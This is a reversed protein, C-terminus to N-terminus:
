RPLDFRLQAPDEAVCICNGMSKAKYMADDALKILLDGHEKCPRALTAVGLSATVKIVEPRHPTKIELREIATRMREAVKVAQECSTNPLCIIFEEGGYRGVFDYPRSNLNLCGAFEELCADGAQHGYTDNIAKFSDIDALIASIPSSERWARNVEEEFRQVFSRRNLLGTLYDTCALYEAHERAREAEIKAQNLANELQKRETIDEFIFFQGLHGRNADSILTSYRRITKGDRLELEDERACNPLNSAFDEPYRLLAHCRALVHEHRLEGADLQPQIDEMQWIECFRRNHYLVNGTRNDVVYYGFPSSAAMAQLLSENWRLKDEAHRHETIDQLMGLVYLPNNNGDRVLSTILQGWVIHGDKHLFRKELKFSEREGAIMENYLTQNPEIDEPHTYENFPMEALEHHSFGLIHSLAPNSQLVSNNQINVLGIGIAAREFIARFRAESEQLSAEIQRRDTLDSCSGATPLCASAAATEDKQLLEDVHANQQKVDTGSQTGSTQRFGM